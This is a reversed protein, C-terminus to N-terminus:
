ASDELGAAAFTGLVSIEATLPYAELSRGFVQRSVSDLCKLLSPTSSVGGWLSERDVSAASSAESLGVSRKM